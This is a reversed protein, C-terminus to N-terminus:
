VSEAVQQGAQGGQSVNKLIGIKETGAENVIIYTSLQAPVVEFQFEEPGFVDPNHRKSSQVDRPAFLEATLRYGTPDLAVTAAQKQLQPDVFRLKAEEDATPTLTQVQSTKEKAKSLLVNTNEKPSANFLAKGPWVLSGFIFLVALGGATYLGIREGRDMLFQKYDFDKLAM